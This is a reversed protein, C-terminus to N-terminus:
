RKQKPMFSPNPKIGLSPVKKSPPSFLGNMGSGSGLIISNNTKKEKLRKLKQNTKIKAKEKEYRVAEKEMADFRAGRAKKRAKNRANLEEKISSKMSEKLNTLLGM